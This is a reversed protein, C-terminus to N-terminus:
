PPAASVLSISTPSRPSSRSFTQGSPYVVFFRPASYVVCDTSRSMAARVEPLSSCTYCLHNTVQKIQNHSCLGPQPIRYHLTPLRKHHLGITRYIVVRQNRNHETTILRRGRTYVKSFLVWVQVRVTLDILLRLYMERTRPIALSIIHRPPSPLGTIHRPRRIILKHPLLYLRPLRNCSLPQEFSRAGLYTRRIRSSLKSITKICFM